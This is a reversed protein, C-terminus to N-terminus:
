RRYQSSLMRGDYDQVPKDEIYYPGAETCISIEHADCGLRDEAERMAEARYSGKVMISGYGPAIVNWWKLM